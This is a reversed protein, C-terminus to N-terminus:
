GFSGNIEAMLNKFRKQEDAEMLAFGETKSRAWNMFAKTLKVRSYESGMRDDFIKLIPTNPMSSVYQAVDWGLESRAVGVLTNRMLDEITPMNINQDIFDKSRMVHRAGVANVLKDQDRRHSESLSDSLATVHLKKAHMITAFYAIKGTSSVPMVSIDDDLAPLGASRMMESLTEIYWYDPLSELILNKGNSFMSQAIDFGLAEQVPLLAAYDTATEPTCVVTGAERDTMEVVRVREIENSGIMFPSHTSFLTQNKESLKSVTNRFEAQKLAHLSTGPEDLLLISNDHKSDAEAFFVVLFSFTWQFGESRQDLEVEVGLEDKVVVKLYQGDVDIELKSAEPKDPDPSWISTIEETLRISAANLRYKRDDLRDMYERMEDQTQVEAKSIEGTLSLDKATFGLFKLFCKNGYDYEPDEVLDKEIREAMKGLHIMPRVKLYNSYLVFKPLLSRCINLSRENKEVNTLQEKLRRYREEEAGGEDVYVLNNKMWSLMRKSLDSDIRDDDAMLGLVDLLENSPIDEEASAPNDKKFNRDIHASFRDLDNEIDSFMLQKPGGDIRHWSSNDLRRGVVYIADTFGPPLLAVDPPELAFHCEVVTFAAPDIGGRAIDRDYDSRPYDRLPNFPIVGSPPNLRQLAQFIATKGAENPGVFITKTREVDFYGTDKISKYGKIRARVLRM